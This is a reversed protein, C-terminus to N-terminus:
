YPRVVVSDAGYIVSSGNSNFRVSDPNHISISAPQYSGSTPKNAQYANYVAVAASVVAAAAAVCPITTGGKLNSLEEESLQMAFNEVELQDLTLKEM